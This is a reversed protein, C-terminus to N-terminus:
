SGFAPFRGSGRLCLWRQLVRRLARLQCLVFQPPVAIKSDSDSAHTPPSFAATSGIAIGGATTVWCAFKRALDLWRGKKVEDKEREAEVDAIVKMPDVNLAEAIKVCGYTDPLAKGTAYNRITQDPMGLLKAVAYVTGSPTMAKLADIYEVVTM